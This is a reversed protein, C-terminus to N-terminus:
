TKTKKRWASFVHACSGAGPGKYTAGKGKEAALSGETQVEYTKAREREDAQPSRLDELKDVFVLGLKSKEKERETGQGKEGGEGGRFPSFPM